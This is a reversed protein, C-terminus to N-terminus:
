THYTHETDTTHQTEDLRGLADALQEKRENDRQGSEEVDAHQEEENNEDVGDKAHRLETVHALRACEVVNDVELRKAATQNQQKTQRSRGAPIVDEVREHDAARLAVAVVPRVWVACLELRYPSVTAGTADGDEEHDGEDEDGEKDDDVHVNGDDQLVEVLRVLLFLHADDLVVEVHEVDDPLLVVRVRGLEDLVFLQRIEDGVKVLRKADRLWVLQRDHREVQWDIGILSQVTEVDKHCEDSVHKAADVLRVLELLELRLHLLLVLLCERCADVM